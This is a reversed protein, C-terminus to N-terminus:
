TCNATAAGSTNTISYAIILTIAGTTITATGVVFQLAKGNLTPQRLAPNTMTIARGATMNTTATASLWTNVTTNNDQIAITPSSATSVTTTPIAAIGWIVMDGNGGQVTCVTYTGASQVVNLSFAALRANFGPGGIVTGQLFNFPFLSVSALLTSPPPVAGFNEIRAVAGPFAILAYGMGAISALTLLTVIASTFIAAFFKGRRRHLVSGGAVVTSVLVTLWVAPMGWAVFAILVLMSPLYCIFEKFRQM